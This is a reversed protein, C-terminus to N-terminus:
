SDHETVALFRLCSIERITTHNGALAFSKRVKRGSLSQSDSPVPPENGLHSFAAAHLQGTLEM